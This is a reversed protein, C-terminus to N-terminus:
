QNPKKHEESNITYIEDVCSSRGVSYFVPQFLFFHGVNHQVSGYRLDHHSHQM